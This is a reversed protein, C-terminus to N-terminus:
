ERGAPGYRLRDHIRICGLTISVVAAIITLALAVGQWFSIGAVVAFFAAGADLIRHDHTVLINWVYVSV